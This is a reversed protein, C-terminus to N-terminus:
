GLWALGTRTTARRALLALIGACAMALGIGAMRSRLSAFVAGGEAAAIERAIAILFPLAAALLIAGPAMARLVHLRAVAAADADEGPAPHGAADGAMRLSRALREEAGPPMAEGDEKLARALEVYARMREAPSPLAVIREVEAEAAARAEADRRRVLAALEDFPLQM